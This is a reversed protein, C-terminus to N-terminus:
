GSHHGSILNDASGSVPEAVLWDTGSGGVTDVVVAAVVVSHTKVSADVTEALVVSDVVVPAAILSGSCAVAVAVIGVVFSETHALYYCCDADCPRLEVEAGELKIEVAAVWTPGGAAAM